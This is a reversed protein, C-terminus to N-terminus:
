NAVLERLRVEANQFVPDPKRGPESRNEVWPASRMAIAVLIWFMYTQQGWAYSAVSVMMFAFSLQLIFLLSFLFNDPRPFRRINRLTLLMPALLLLALSVLGLYGTEAISQFWSSDCSLMPVVHGEGNVAELGLLPFTEPGFGWLTRGFDTAVVRKCKDLIDWRGQYSSGASTDPNFTSLYDNEVTERVGPRIVLVLVTLIGLTLLHKRTAGQAFVVLLALALTLGLWPGRSSTKYINWFMLLLSVQLFVKERLNRADNLLYLALPISLTLGVGYLIAHPFTANIRLGREMDEILAAGIGLRGQVTPFLSIPTWFYYAQIVGFVCCVAMARVMSVLIRRVTDKTTVTRFFIFYVMFYDIVQNVVTKLSTGPDVSHVTSILGCLVNLAMIWKLPLVESGRSESQSAGTVFYLILLTLVALRATSLDILGPIHFKSEDPILTVAFTFFPLARELGQTFAIGVLVAIVVIDIICILAV